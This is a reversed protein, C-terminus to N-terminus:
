CIVSIIHRGVNNDYIVYFYFCFFYRMIETAHNFKQKNLEVVRHVCLLIKTVRSSGRIQFRSNQM